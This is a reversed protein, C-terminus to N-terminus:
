HKSTIQTNTEIQKLSTTVSLAVVDAQLKPEPDCFALTPFSTSSGSGDRLAWLGNRPGLTLLTERSRDIAAYAERRISEPLSSQESRIAVIAAARSPAPLLLAFCLIALFSFSAERNRM